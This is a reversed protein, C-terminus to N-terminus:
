SNKGANLILNAAAESEDEEAMAAFDGDDSNIGPTGAARMYKALPDGTHRPFGSLMERAAEPALDSNIALNLAAAERGRAESSSLITNIRARDAEVAAAAKGAETESINAQVRGIADKAMSEFSRRGHGTLKAQIAVNEVASDIATKLDTTM